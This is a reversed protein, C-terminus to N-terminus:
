RSSLSKRYPGRTRKRAKEEEAAREFLMSEANNNYSATFTDEFKYHVKITHHELKAKTDFTKKCLRCRFLENIQVISCNLGYQRPGVQDEILNFLRRRNGSINHQHGSRNNWAYWIEIM